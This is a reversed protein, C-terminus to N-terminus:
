VAWNVKTPFIVLAKSARNHHLSALISIQYVFSKGSSTSTSILVHKGLSLAKLAQYQHSYLKTFPLKSHPFSYLVNNLESLEVDESEVAPLIIESTLKQNSFHQDKLDNYIQELSRRREVDLTGFPNIHKEIKQALLVDCDIGANISDEFFTFLSKSFTENRTRIIQAINKQKSLKQRKNQRTEKFQIELSQDINEISHPDTVSWSLSILDPAIAQIKFLDEITLDKGSLNKISKQITQLTIVSDSKSHLFSYVTCFGEFLPLLQSLSEPISLLTMKNKNRTKKLRITLRETKGSGFGNRPERQFMRPLLWSM